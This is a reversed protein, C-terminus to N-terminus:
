PAVRAGRTIQGAPNRRPSVLASFLGTAARRRRSAAPTWPGHCSLGTAVHGRGWIRGEAAETGRGPQHMAAGSAAGVALRGLREEEGGAEDIVAGLLGLGGEGALDAVVLVGAEAVGGHRHQLLAQGPDLARLGAPGRGGAHRGHVGGHQAVQLDPVPHHRRHPPHRLAILEAGVHVPAAADLADLQVLVELPHRDAGRLDHAQADGADLAALLADGTLGPLGRDLLVCDYHHTALATQASDGRRVWDVAHGDLRLWSQITDGLSADDEALLIRM